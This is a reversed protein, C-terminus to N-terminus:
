QKSLKYDRTEDFAKQVAKDFLLFSDQNKDFLSEFIEKFFFRQDNGIKKSKDRIVDLHTILSKMVYQFDDHEVNIQSVLDTLHSISFGRGELFKLAAGFGTLAQSRKFVELTSKGYPQAKINFETMKFDDAEFHWDETKQIIQDLFQKFLKVFNQFSNIDKNLDDLNKLTKINDLIETREAINEKGELYSNFGDLVDKFNFENTNNRVPADDKDTVFTIGEIGTTKYDFYLMEMLHRTSMTNQGTNLTIMRYLIGLRNLGVYVEARIRQNLFYVLKDDEKKAQLEDRLSRMVYTRQLGDIILLDNEQFAKRILDENNFKEFNLDLLEHQNKVALVIPPISCGQLFDERLIEKIKSKIVIKRQYDNNDTIFDAIKLYEGINIEIMVNAAKIRYDPLISLLKLSTESM